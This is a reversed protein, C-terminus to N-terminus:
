RCSGERPRNSARKLAPTYLELGKPTKYVDFDCAFKTLWLARAINADYGAPLPILKNFDLVAGIEMVERTGTPKNVEARLHNNIFREIDESPGTVKMRHFWNPM